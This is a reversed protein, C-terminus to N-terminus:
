DPVEVKNIADNAMEADAMTVNVKSAKSYAKLSRDYMAEAFSPPVTFQGAATVKVKYTIETIRNKINGYFVIRDERIDIYDSEWRGARRNISERIVEFGGPLLDVIAVNEISKLETARVRLRVTLEDGQKINSALEGQKDLFARQIEIGDTQAAKPLQSQYGAQMNVYYLANDNSLASKQITAKIRQTSIPYVASAFPRMAPELTVEGQLSSAVFAITQDIEALKSNSANSDSALASHYAGLALMSYAASNTNYQGKYIAQTINLLAQESIAKLQEPFHKAV